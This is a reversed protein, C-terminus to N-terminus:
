LDTSNVKAAILAPRYSALFTITIVAISTWLFDTWVIKVPYSDIISSSIGLSVLGYNDQVWVIAFGVVLGILAGSFAIIAGQKIYIQKVLKERAGM